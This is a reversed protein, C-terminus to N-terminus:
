DNSRDSDSKGKSAGFIPQKGLAILMADEEAHMREFDADDHDDYGALHLFGHLAYLLVEDQWSHGRAQAQERAVPECIIIQGEIGDTTDDDDRLDFTLVDTPSPDNMWRDHFECMQPEDVIAIEISVHKLDHRAAAFTLGTRLADTLDDDAGDVEISIPPTSPPESDPEREGDHHPRSM